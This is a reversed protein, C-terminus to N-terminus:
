RSFLAGRYGPAAFGAAVEASLAIMASPSVSRPCNEVSFTMSLLVSRKSVILM